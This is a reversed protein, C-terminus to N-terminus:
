CSQRLGVATSICRKSGRCGGREGFDRAWQEFEELGKKSVSPRISALSAEFDQMNIPRIQEKPTYLLAEGLYRLPGMAADKALATIDSGSYGETLAVLRVIDETQLDHKQHGLLTRIQTERTEAEPLPIYQRRVFRRRAAEDIDWPCNTAALVLVRTPDGETKEGEKEKGAAARQLDSWQILFETKGM